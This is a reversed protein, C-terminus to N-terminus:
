THNGSVNNVLVTMPPRGDLSGHPRGHNYFDVFRRLAYLREDNSRYPRAYAWENLPTRIFREAWIDNQYWGFLSVSPAAATSETAIAESRYASSRSPRM